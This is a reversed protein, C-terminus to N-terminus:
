SRPQAGSLEVSTASSGLTRSISYAQSALVFNQGNLATSIALMMEANDKYKALYEVNQVSLNGAAIIPSRLQTRLADVDQRHTHYASIVATIMSIFFAAVAVLLSGDRYWGKREKQFAVIDDIRRGLAAEGETMGNVRQPDLSDTM